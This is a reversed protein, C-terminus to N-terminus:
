NEWMLVEYNLGLIRKGNVHGIIIWLFEGV